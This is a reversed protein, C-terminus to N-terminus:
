FDTEGEESCVDFFIYSVYASDCICHISHPVTSCQGCALTGASLLPMWLEYKISHILSLDLNWTYNKKTCGASCDKTYPGKM